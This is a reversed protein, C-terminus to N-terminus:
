SLLEKLETYVKHIPLGVVNYYSGEIRNVAIYGLWEQIGYGGAKDYPEQNHLYYEIEQDNLENFYVTTIDYISKNGEKSKMYVGTIVEHKDNSLKKLMDYAEKHNNPKGLMLGNHAVITDASIIVANESPLTKFEDAKKQAIHTPIDELDLGNPFSEDIEMSFTEFNLGAKRLIHHRRPSGSALIIRKKNLFDM